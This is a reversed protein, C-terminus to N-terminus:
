ALKIIVGSAEDYRERVDTNAGFTDYKKAVFNKGEPFAFTLLYGYTHPTHSTVPPSLYPFNFTLLYVQVPSPYQLPTVPCVRPYNLREDHSLM